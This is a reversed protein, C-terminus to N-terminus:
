TLHDTGQSYIKVVPRLLDPLGLISKCVLKLDQDSFNYSLLWFKYTLGVLSQLVLKSLIQSVGVKSHHGPSLTQRGRVRLTKCLKPTPQGEHKIALLFLMCLCNYCSCCHITPVLFMQGVIGSLPLCLDIGLSSLNGTHLGLQVLSELFIFFNFLKNLGSFITSAMTFATLAIVM